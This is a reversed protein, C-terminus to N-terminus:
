ILSNLYNLTLAGSRLQVTLKQAFLEALAKEPPTRPIRVTGDFTFNFLKEIDIDQGLVQSLLARISLVRIPKKTQNTNVILIDAKQEQIKQGALAQIAFVKKVENLILSYNPNDKSSMINLMNSNLVQSAGLWQSILNMVPSSSLIHINSLSSYNKASVGINTYAAGENSMFSFNVDVKDQSSTNVTYSMGQGLNVTGSMVSQTAGQTKYSFSSAQIRQLLDDVKIECLKKGTNSGVESIAKLVSEFMQGKIQSLTTQTSLAQSLYQKLQTNNKISQGQELLQKYYNRYKEWAQAAEPTSTQLGGIGTLQINLKNGTIQTLLEQSVKNFDEQMILNNLNDQLAQCEQQTMIINLNNLMTKKVRQLQKIPASANKILEPQKEFQILWSNKINYSIAM